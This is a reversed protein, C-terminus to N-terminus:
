GRHAEATERLAVAAARVEAAHDRECGIVDCQRGRAVETGDLGPCQGSGTDTEHPLHIFTRGCQAPQNTM